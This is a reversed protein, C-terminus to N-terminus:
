NLRNRLVATVITPLYWRNDTATFTGDNFAFQQPANVVNNDPSGAILQMRITLVKSWTTISGAALYRDTWRDGDDDVGYSIQLAYVDDLMVSAPAANVKRYLAPRGTDPDTALYYTLTQYRLVEAGPGYVNNKNDTDWSATLNGPTFSGTGAHEITSTAGSTALRTVQFVHAKNCDSVMAIDGTALTSVAASSISLKSADSTATIALPASDPLQIVLLDQGTLPAPDGSLLTALGAPLTATLNDYGRIGAAYNFALTSASNLTNTLTLSQKSYCGRYGTMRLQRALQDQLYRANDEVQNIADTTRYTQSNTIFVQLVAATLLLGLTIAIMVEVLGFGSNRKGTASPRRQHGSLQM